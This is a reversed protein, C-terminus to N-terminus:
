AGEGGRSRHYIAVNYSLRPRKLSDAVARGLEGFADRLFSQAEDMSEFTWFCHLVRLRFGSRLFPGDRRSWVGYEPLNGRLKSVDDRGYDHVVLLRGSPRLIRESEAIEHEDVGRFGSWEAVIADASADPLPWSMPRDSDLPDVPTLRSGLETLRRAEAEGSGVVVVDRGVIPGLAELARGIKGEVDLARGLRKALPPDLHIPLDSM